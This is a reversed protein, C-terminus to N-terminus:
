GTYANNQMGREPTKIKVAARLKASRARPNHVLETQGAALPRNTLINLVADYSTSGHDRFFQKIIRDELSHFSIVALRGGPNLLEVWVSLGAELQDLEQNVAIRLAQFVRTAPHIRHYGPYAKAIVEALETTTSFPRNDTLMGALRTAGSVEGYHRFIDVLEAQTTSNLIDAATVPQRRDMRMDLPGEERFSFGRHPNDLHPSSVGLDALIMDFRQDTAALAKSAGLFDSHIINVRSDDHYLNKLHQVAAEDRDVLTASGASGIGALVSIAHGGYGATLDLYSDSEVPKLVDLVEQLLVPIHKQKPKQM